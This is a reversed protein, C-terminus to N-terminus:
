PRQAPKASSAPYRGHVKSHAGTDLPAAKATDGSPQRPSARQYASSAGTQSPRRVSSATPAPKSGRRPNPSMGTEALGFDAVIQRQLARSYLCHHQAEATVGHVLWTMAKCRSGQPNLCAAMFTNPALLPSLSNDSGVEPITMSTLSSSQSLQSPRRSSDAAQALASAGSSRRRPQLLGQSAGQEASPQDASEEQLVGCGM